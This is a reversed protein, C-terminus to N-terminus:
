PQEDKQKTQSLPTQELPAAEETKGLANFMVRLIKRTERTKPHQSGLTQERLALAQQFLALAETDHHQRKRLQALGELTEAVDPHPSGLSHQRISLARQYLAGAHEDQGRERALNALGHLSEAVQSHHPGLAQERIHLARQYYREAQEYRGQEDSLIGLNNLSAAVQPHQPGLAEERISLARLWLPEAQDYRGQEVYLRGLKNLSAAVQLPESERQQEGIALARQFLPEALSYSAHESLYTGARNLLEAAEILHLDHAQILQDCAQVQELYRLCQPWTTIENQPDAPFLTHVARVVREAWTHQEERAMRDLQVTQVLRHISLLHEQAQRKVLSFALLAELLENFTFPDAVAEQLVSPWQPAAETLVEEPIHDPSLHACLRLLEAAAPHVQEVQQFSLEWTTAVSDPYHTAQRGRRALLKARHQEYLQLYDAFGCGTEEIYAGAQDLALPFGDLAIVINSAENCEEDNADLRQSRQLLFQTGEVLGMSAVEIPNALAAVAHARTTLLISGPGQQPLYPQVLALDDANDM